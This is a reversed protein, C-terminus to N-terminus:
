DKMYYNTEFGDANLVLGENWSVNQTMIAIAEKLSGQGEPMECIVEDHVHAVIKYGAKDLRIMAIALCDRAVAQVINEVLKGGYTELRGWKRSTQEMGMYEISEGGFRNTGIRPHIYVLHRGSPLEIFLAGKAVRFILGGQKIRQPKRTRIANKAARDAAGWFQIIKPSAARWKEVIDPLEEESLGKELAGMIVLAHPGGGYGLALEAVKGKQRLDGNIGHKVVPVHFMSSASACYIDGGEAFVNMRWTEGALWAIVRAEIASFDAIIFRKGEPAVLATRVLQSLVDPVNDYLMEMVDLDGDKVLNRATDLDPMSNRPLNQLQIIRGAWRGSRAAGYFQLMGRCRGDKAMSGAMAEYKKISTKGLLQRIELIRRVNVPLDTEALLEQVAKKDMCELPRGVQEEMWEKLQMVSNPNSLGTIETAEEMLTDHHIVNMIVANNVLTQDVAIGAANIKQDLCWVQHETDPPRLALLKRRIAKEVVVDQRNYEIYEVWKDPADAPMNRTRGGNAKTPKCPMSFYRILAKGRADKQKDEGFHLVKAVNALGTPLSNYCALVSSCEWQATQLPPLNRRQLYKSLCTIEFNANFATKIIDIDYLCTILDDPLEQRTMDIVTVPDEDFSYGFLLITFADSDVYKYVGYKILNVDSYTEIDIALTRM